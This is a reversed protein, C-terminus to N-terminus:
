SYTDVTTDVTPYVHVYLFTYTSTGIYPFTMHYGQRLFLDRNDAPRGDCDVIRLGCDTVWPLGTALFPTWFLMMALPAAM